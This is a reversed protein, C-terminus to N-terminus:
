LPSILRVIAFVETPSGARFVAHGAGARIYQVDSFPANVEEIKRTRTDLIALRSIGQDVHSCVILEPSAFAYSSTGFVWQPTGLEAAQDCVPEIECDSSLRQLNWWGSRDSVFYLVGEPSWEPQFISEALGGAVRQSRKLAGDAALDAVWLESGDWPM